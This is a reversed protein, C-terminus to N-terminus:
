VLASSSIGHAVLTVRFFELSFRYLLGGILAIGNGFNGAPAARGQPLENIEYPLAAPEHRM